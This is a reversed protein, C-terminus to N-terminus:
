IHHSADNRKIKYHIHWKGTTGSASTGRERDGGAASLYRGSHVLLFKWLPCKASVSLSAASRRKCSVCSRIWFALHYIPHIWWTHLYTLISGGSWVNEEEKFSSPFCLLIFFFNIGTELLTDPINCEPFWLKFSFQSVELSFDLSYFTFM